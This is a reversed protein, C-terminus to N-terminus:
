INQCNLLTCTLWVHWSEWIIQSDGPYPVSRESEQAPWWIQQIFDDRLSKQAKTQSKARKKGWFKFKEQKCYQKQPMLKKCTNLWQCLNNRAVCHHNRIKITHLEHLVEYSTRPWEWQPSPQIQRFPPNPPPPLPRTHFISDESKLDESTPM